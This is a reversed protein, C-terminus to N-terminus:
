VTEAQDTSSCCDENSLWAVAGDLYRFIAALTRHLQRVDIVGPLKNKKSNADHAPDGSKTEHYRFRFSNPDLQEFEHLLRIFHPTQNDDLLPQAKPQSEIDTWLESLRHTHLYGDPVDVLLSLEKLGLEIAQRACFLVPYIMYDDRRCASDILKEVAEQYAIRYISISAPLQFCGNAGGLLQNTQGELLVLKSSLPEYEDGMTDNDTAM